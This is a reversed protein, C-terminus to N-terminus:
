HIVGYKDFQTNAAGQAQQGVGNVGQDLFSKMSARSSTRVRDHRAAVEHVFRQRPRGEGQRRHRGRAQQTAVGGLATVADGVPPRVRRFRARWRMNWLADESYDSWIGSGGQSPRWDYYFEAQAFGVRGWWKDPVSSAQGWAAMKVGPDVQKAWKDNGIVVSWVQFYGNGNEAQDFVKMSTTNDSGGALPGLQGLQQQVQQNMDTHGHHKCHDMDFSPPHSDNKHQDDFTKKKQTCLQDVASDGPNFGLAGGGNCFYGPFASALGGIVGGVWGGYPSFPALVTKDLAAGVDDGAKKCLYDKNDEEQVPLGLRAANPFKPILSASIVGGGQVPEKFQQSVIVSKAEAVWPMTTAIGKQAASLAHLTPKLFKEYASITTSIPSKLYGTWACVEPM